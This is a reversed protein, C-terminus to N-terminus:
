CKLINASPALLCGRFFGLLQLWSDICSRKCFVMAPMGSQSAAHVTMTTPGHLLWSLQKIVERKTGLFKWRSIQSKEKPYM